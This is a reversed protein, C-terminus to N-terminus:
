TADTVPTQMATWFYIKISKLPKTPIIFFMFDQTDYRALTYFCVVLQLVVNKAGSQM